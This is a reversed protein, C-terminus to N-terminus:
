LHITPKSDPVTCFTQHVDRLRLLTQYEEASNAVKYWGCRSASVHCFLVFPPVRPTGMFPREALDHPAAKVSVTPCGSLGTGPAAM